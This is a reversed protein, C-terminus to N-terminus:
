PVQGGPKKGKRSKWFVGIALIIPLVFQIPIHLYYPVLKLGVYLHEAIDGSRHLSLLYVAAVLLFVHWNKQKVKFLQTLIARAAYIFVSVKIFGGGILLLYTFIELHEIVGLYTILEMAKVFPFYYTNAFPAHLIGIILEMTTMVVIGALVIPIWVVKQLKEKQAISPLLVLFVVLEGYPFTLGTPFIMKSLPKWGQSFLPLLYRAQFEESFFGLLWLLVLIILFFFSMILASRAIAEVGLMICYAAVLIFPVAAVWTPSDPYLIQTTFFAFDNMVRAAIYLFYFSFVVAIIKSLFSGFGMELLPIFEKWGSKKLVFLYFYFLLIGFGMEMATGLISDEMATFNLGVVITSGTLFLLMMSCLELTSISIKNM